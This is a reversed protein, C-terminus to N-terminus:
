QPQQIASLKWANRGVPRTFTWFEEFKVPETRSGSLVEKTSEDITYDLLNAAFKVTIYDQGSEQWAETIEVSRVAINELRNIKREAKLKRADESLIGYMEDTLVERVTSMDRNAWAGQVRFFVDMCADTFAKEDFGADMQRVHSIGREVDNGEVAPSGMPPTYGPTSTGAPGGQYYAGAMAEQERRRKIFRYIFYLIAGILVIDLLGVGGGFAGDGAFGLSRFLMGGILGGVMGGAMSRWFSYPASATPSSPSTVSRSPSAPSPTSPSAPASYTRSGRSGTSSRGGGARAFVEDPILFCLFFFLTLFMIGKTVWRNSSM